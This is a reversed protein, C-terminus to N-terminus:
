ANRLTSGANGVVNEAQSASPSDGKDSRSGGRPAKEAEEEEGAGVGVGVRAEARAKGDAGAEARVEGDAEAEAGAEGSAEVEAGVEVSAEAEAEAEADAEEEEEHDERRRRQYGARPGLSVQAFTGTPHKGIARSVNEDAISPKAVSDANSKPRTAASSATWQRRKLFTCLPIFAFLSVDKFHAQRERDLM